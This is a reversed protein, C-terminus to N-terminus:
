PVLDSDSRPALKFNSFSYTLVGTIKTFATGVIFLNDQTPNLEDDVRLNGTIAFEDFDQPTDPNM